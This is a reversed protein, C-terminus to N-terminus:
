PATELVTASARSSVTSTSIRAWNEDIMNHAFDGVGYGVVSGALVGVGGAASSPPAM